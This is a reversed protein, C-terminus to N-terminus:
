ESSAAPRSVRVSASDMKLAPAPMAVASTETGLRYMCEGLSITASSSRSRVARNNAANTRRTSSPISKIPYVARRSPPEAPQVSGTADGSPADTLPLGFKIEGVPAFRLARRRPEPLTCAVLGSGYIELPRM